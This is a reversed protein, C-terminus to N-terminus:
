DGGMRRTWMNTGQTTIYSRDVQMGGEGDVSEYGPLNVQMADGEGMWVKYRCPSTSSASWRAVTALQTSFTHPLPLLHPVTSLLTRTPTFPFLHSVEAGEQVERCRGRCGGADMLRAARNISSGGGGRM